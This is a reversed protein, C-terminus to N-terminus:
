GRALRDLLIQSAATWAGARRVDAVVAKDSTVVVLVRGPPEAAVLRRILDDASDGPASFLVRVGRPAPPQAPPRTAGDFAVTVEAGSRSRLSGMAAVLRSRQDALTLEPYGTKTVNYGDIILHVEPVGLLRDLDAADRVAGTGGSGPDQGAVADAPRLMGAPLALERRIGAAAGTLADLLVRLRADDGERAGRVDRRAADLATELEAVRTRLRDLEPEVATAAATLEDHAAAVDAQAAEAEARAAKLEGTRARLTNRLRTAEEASGAGATVAAGAAGARLAKVQSRADALESRLRAIEDAAADRGARNRELAQSVQAVLDTWGPPRVLYAVVAIDVPDSATTSEGAAVAAVLQPVADTVADAVRERFGADADLTASLAAAGLQARKAPAFKAIPRLPAPVQDGPLGTLVDSALQVLRQRVPEALPTSAAAIAADDGAPTEGAMGGTRHGV